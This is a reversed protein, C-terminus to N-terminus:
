TPIKSGTKHVTAGRVKEGEEEEGGGGKGTHILIHISCIPICTITCHTLPFYPNQAESLHVGAVLDSYLDQKKSSSM